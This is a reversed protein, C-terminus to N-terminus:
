YGGEEYLVAVAEDHHEISSRLVEAHKAHAIRLADEMLNSTPSTSRKLGWRSSRKLEEELYALIDRDSVDREHHYIMMELVKLEAAIEFVDTSWELAYSPNEAFSERWKALMEKAQARAQHAGWRCDPHLYVNEPHALRDRANEVTRARREEKSPPPPLVYARSTSRRAM